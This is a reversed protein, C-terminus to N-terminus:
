HGSGGGVFGLHGFDVLLHVIPAKRGPIEDLVAFAKGINQLFLSLRSEAHGPTGAQKSLGTRAASGFLVHAGPLSRQRGVAGALPIGTM